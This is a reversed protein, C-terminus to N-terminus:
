TLLGIIRLMEALETEVVAARNVAELDIRRVLDKPEMPKLYDPWERQLARLANDSDPPRHAACGPLHRLLLAEFCPDQWVLKIGNRVALRRAQDARDPSRRIQDTDLLIFRHRFRERSRQIYAIRAIACEVRALPDGAQIDEIRLHVPLGAAEAMSRILFGYEVESQGECGIYIPTRQAIHPKRRSM